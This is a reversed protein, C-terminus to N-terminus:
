LTLGYLKIDRYYRDVNEWFFCLVNGERGFEWLIGCISNLILILNGEKAIAEDIWKRKGM